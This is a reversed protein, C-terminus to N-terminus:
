TEGLICFQSNDVKNIFGKTKAYCKLDKQFEKILKNPKLILIIIKSVTEIGVNIFEGGPHRLSLSLKLHTEVWCELKDHNIM